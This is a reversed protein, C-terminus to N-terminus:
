SCKVCPMYMVAKIRGEYTLLDFWDHEIFSYIGFNKPSTDGEGNHYNYLTM